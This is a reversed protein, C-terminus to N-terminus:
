LLLWLSVDMMIIGQAQRSALEPIITYDEWQYLQVLGLFLQKRPKKNIYFHNVLSSRCFIM